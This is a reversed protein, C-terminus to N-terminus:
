PTDDANKLHYNSTWGGKLPVRHLPGSYQESKNSTRFEDVHAAEPKQTPDPQFNLLLEKTKPSM